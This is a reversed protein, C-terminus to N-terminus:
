FLCWASVGAARNLKPRFKRSKSLSIKFEEFLFAPKLVSPCSTQTGRIPQGTQLTLPVEVPPFDCIAILIGLTCAPCHPLPPGAVAEQRPFASAGLGPERRHGEPCQATAHSSPLVGLGHGVLRQGHEPPLRPAAQRGGAEPSIHWECRWAHQARAECCAPGEHPKRQVARKGCSEQLKGPLWGCDRCRDGHGTLASFCATTQGAQRGRHGSSSLRGRHAQGAATPVEPFSDRLCLCQFTGSHVWGLARLSVMQIWSGCIARLETGLSRRPPLQRPRQHCGGPMAM